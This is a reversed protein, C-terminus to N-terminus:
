RQSNTKQPFPEIFPFIPNPKFVGPLGMGTICIKKLLPNGRAFESLWSTTISGDHLAIALECLGRLKLAAFSQQEGGRGTIYLLRFQVGHSICAKLKTDTILGNYNAHLVDLIFKSLDSSGVLIEPSFHLSQDALIVTSVPHCNTATLLRMNFYIQKWNM